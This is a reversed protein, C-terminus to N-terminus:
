YKNKLQLPFFRENIEFGDLVYKIFRGYKKRLYNIPKQGEGNIAEEYTEGTALDTVTFISVIEHKM